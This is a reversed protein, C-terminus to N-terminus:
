KQPCFIDSVKDEIPTKITETIKNITGSIFDKAGAVINDTSIPKLNILNGTGGNDLIKSKIESAKNLVIKPINTIGAPIAENGNIIFSKEARAVFFLFTIGLIIALITLTKM